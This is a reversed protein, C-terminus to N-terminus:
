YRLGKAILRRAIIGCMPMPKLRPLANATAKLKLQRARRPSAIDPRLRTREAIATTAIAPTSGPVDSRASEEISIQAPLGIAMLGFARDILLLTLASEALKVSVGTGRKVGDPTLYRFRHILQCLRRVGIRALQDCRDAALIKERV